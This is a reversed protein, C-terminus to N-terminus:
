SNKVNKLLKSWLSLKLLFNMSKEKNSKMLNKHPPTMKNCCLNNKSNNSLLIQKKGCPIWIFNRLKGTKNNLFYNRKKIKTTIRLNKFMIKFNMLRRKYSKIRLSMGEKCTRSKVLINKRKIEWKPPTWRKKQLNTRLNTRMFNFRKFSYLKKKRMNQNSFFKNEKWNKSNNKKHLSKIVFVKKLKGRNNDTTLWNRNCPTKM